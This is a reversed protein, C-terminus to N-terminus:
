PQDPKPKIFKFMVLSNKTHNRMVIHLICYLSKDLDVRFWQKKRRKQILKM